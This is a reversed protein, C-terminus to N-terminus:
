PRRMGLPLCGSWCICSMTRYGCSARSGPPGSRRRTSGPATPSRSGCGRRPPSRRGNSMAPVASVRLYPVPRPRPMLTAPAPKLADARYQVKAAAAGEHLEAKPKAAYLSEEMETKLNDAKPGFIAQLGKGVGVVGAAGLAKLKEPNVKGMDAVEVRRRTICADLGLINSKGGFALVLEKAYDDAVAAKADAVDIGSEAEGTKPDISPSSRPWVSPRL